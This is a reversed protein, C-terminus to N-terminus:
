VALTRRIARVDGTSAIAASLVGQGVFISVAGFMAAIHLFKWFTM